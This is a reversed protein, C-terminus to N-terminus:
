AWESAYDVLEKVRVCDGKEKRSKHKKKLRRKKKKM